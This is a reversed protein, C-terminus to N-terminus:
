RVLMHYIDDMVSGDNDQDLLDLITQAFDNQPALQSSEAALKEATQGGFINGIFDNAAKIASEYPSGNSDNSLFTQFHRLDQKM